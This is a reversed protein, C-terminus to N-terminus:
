IKEKFLKRIFVSNKFIPLIFEEACTLIFVSIILLLIKAILSGDFWTDGIMQSIVVATIVLIDKMFRNFRRQKREDSKRNNNM